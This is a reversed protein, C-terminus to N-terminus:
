QVERLHSGMVKQQVEEKLHSEMVQQEERLYRGIVQQQVEEM